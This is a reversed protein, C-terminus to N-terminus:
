HNRRHRNFADLISDHFLKDEVHWLGHNFDHLNHLKYGLLANLVADHLLPKEWRWLDLIFDHLHGATLASGSKKTPHNKPGGTDSVLAPLTSHLNM